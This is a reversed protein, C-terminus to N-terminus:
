PAVRTASTLLAAYVYGAGVDRDIALEGELEVTEGIQFAETTTVTLDDDGRDASGSGDRLHLYTQGLIGENLKVVTGRVRLTQGALKQRKSYVEAVTQGNPARSREVAPVSVERAPELGVRRYPDEAALAPDVAAHPDTGHPDAGHPDAGHPDAGLVGACLEAHPDDAGVGAACLEAHPDDAHVHGDHAAHPDGAHLHGDHGAHPDLAHVGRADAHIPEGEVGPEEAGDEVLWPPVVSAYAPKQPLARSSSSPLAQAAGLAAAVGLVPLLHIFKM